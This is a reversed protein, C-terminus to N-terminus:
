RQDVRYVFFEFVSIWNPKSIFLIKIKREMENEYIRQLIVKYKQKFHNTQM